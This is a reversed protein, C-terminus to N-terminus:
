KKLSRSCTERNYIRYRARARKESCAARVTPRWPCMSPVCTSVFVKHIGYNRERTRVATCPTELMRHVTAPADPRSVKVRCGAGVPSRRAVTAGAVWWRRPASGLTLQRSPMGRVAHAAEREQQQRHMRTCRPAPCPPRTRKTLGGSCSADIGLFFSTMQWGAHGRRLRIRLFIRFSM